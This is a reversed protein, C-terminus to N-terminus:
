GDSKEQKYNSDKDFAKLTIILRERITGDDFSIKDYGEPTMAATRRENDNLQLYDCAHALTCCIRYTGEEIVEDNHCYTTLFGIHYYHDDM